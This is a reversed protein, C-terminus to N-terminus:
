FAAIRVSTLSSKRRARRRSSGQSARVSATADLSREEANLARTSSEIRLEDGELLAITGRIMGMDRELIELVQDFLKRVNRERVVATTIEQLVAIESPVKESMDVLMIARLKGKRM